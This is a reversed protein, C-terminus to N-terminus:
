EAAAREGREGLIADWDMPEITLTEAPEHTLAKSAGGEAAAARGEITRGGAGVHVHEVLLRSRGEARHRDLAEIQRACLGLLRTAHQLERNRVEGSQGPQMARHLCDMATGHVGVMQAALMGELGNRPAIEKMLAMAAALRRNEEGEPLELPIPLADLAQVLLRAQLDTDATGTAAEAHERTSRLVRTHQMKGNGGGETAGM